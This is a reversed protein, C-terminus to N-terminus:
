ASMCLISDRLGAIDNEVPTPSPPQVEGVAATVQKRAIDMCERMITTLQVTLPTLDFSFTQVMTAVTFKEVRLRVILPLATLAHHYGYDQAHALDKTKEFNRV